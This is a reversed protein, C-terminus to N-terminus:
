KMSPLKGLLKGLKMALSTDGGVALRGQIVATQVKLQGKAIRIFNKDQVTFTVDAKKTKGKKLVATKKTMDLVWESSKPGAINFQYVAGGENAAIKHTKLYNGLHNFFKDSEPTQEKNTKKDIIENQKELIAEELENASERIYRTFLKVDPMSNSDSTASINVEGNYSFITIILGMGDMIPATGMVAYLKHGQLYLPFQPGPVNTIVCNFVPNHMKAMNFRSYIKAAQNAIGYPVAEAMDALSKAGMAGQYTKGKITNEHIKELREIPDEIQTALQVLMTSVKNGSQSEESKQRVSIPVMAVLPKSPLKNKELLYRRLAGACIGLIIDNLTTDMILKLVKMRELSLMIGSWKRQASIIVNLPTKPATFPATPLDIHQVRTLMGAKVTASISNVIIKPLKLPNKAFSIASRAALSLENPLPEPKYERPEKLKGPKPTGDFILSLMGAGAVGDVAVHHIKGIVAVSGKPVQKIADLGEVFTYHWLPRSRDLPESFIDSAIKRLSEWDGPNPLAIHNVHLDLNFNPDDVWYPYDIGMPVTMLRKRLLPFQHIRSLITKKFIDFKLSGEILCVSGVHMPSTSSEGYLFTADLGTIPKINSLNLNELIKDVM